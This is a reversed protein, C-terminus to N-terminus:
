VLKSWASASVACTSTKNSYNIQLFMLWQALQEVALTLEIRRHRDIISADSIDGSNPLYFKWYKKLRRDKPPPLMISVAKSLPQRLFSKAFSLLFTMGFQISSLRVCEDWLSSFYRFEVNPENRSDIKAIIWYIFEIEMGRACRNCLNLAFSSTFAKLSHRWRAHAQEAGRRWNIQNFNLWQMVIYHLSRWPACSYYQFKHLIKM